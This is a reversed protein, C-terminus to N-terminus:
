FELFSPTVMQGKSNYYKNLYTDIILLGHIRDITKIYRKRKEDEEKNEEGWQNIEDPKLNLFFPNGITVTVCGTIQGQLNETAIYGFHLIYTGEELIIGVLYENSPFPSDFIITNENMSCIGNISNWIMEGDCANSIVTHAFLNPGNPYFIYNLDSNVELMITDIPNTVEFEITSYWYQEMVTCPLMSLTPLFPGNEGCYTATYYGDSIHEPCNVELEIPNNCEVYNASLTYSILGEQCTVCDSYAGIWFWYTGPTLEFFVNFGENTINTICNGNADSLELWGGCESSVVIEGGTYPCDDWFAFVPAITSNTFAIQYISNQEVVLRNFLPNRNRCGLCDINNNSGAFFECDGPFNISATYAVNSVPITTICQSLVQTTLLILILSIFQKMNLM